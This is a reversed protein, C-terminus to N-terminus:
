LILRIAWIPLNALEDKNKMLQVIATSVMGLAMWLTFIWYIIKTRKESQNSTEM